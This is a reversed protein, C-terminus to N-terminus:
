TKRAAQQAWFCAHRYVFGGEKVMKDATALDQRAYQLWRIAEQVSRKLDM